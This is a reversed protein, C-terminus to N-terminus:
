VLYRQWALSHFYNHAVGYVSGIAQVLDVDIMILAATHPNVFSQCFTGYTCALDPNEAQKVMFSVTRDFTRCTYVAAM